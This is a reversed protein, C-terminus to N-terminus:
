HARARLVRDEFGSVAKALDAPRRLAFEKGDLARVFNGIVGRWAFRSADLFSVALGLRKFRAVAPSPLQRGFKLDQGLFVVADPERGQLLEAALLREFFRMDSGRLLQSVDVTDPQLNRVVGRLSEFDVRDQYDHRVLVNQDEFSFAVLSFQDFQRSSALRRLAALHPLLSLMRPRVVRGRRGLADLSLFIKLRSANPRRAMSVDEQPRFPFVEANIIAGPQLAVQVGREGRSLAARFRQTGECSVGSSDVIRWHARYRGVGVLVGTSFTMDGRLGNPVVQDAGMRHAVVLPEGPTGDVPAVEMVFRLDIKRDWFQKVPLRFWLGAVFRFEFDLHPGIGKGVCKLSAQPQLAAGLAAAALALCVAM